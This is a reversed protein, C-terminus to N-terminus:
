LYWVMIVQYTENISRVPTSYEQLFDSNTVHDLSMYRVESVLDPNVPSEIFRKDVSVSLSVPIKEPQWTYRMLQEESDVVSLPFVRMFQSWHAFQLRTDFYSKCGFMKVFNWPSLKGSQMMWVLSMEPADNSACQWGVSQIFARFLRQIRECVRMARRIFFWHNINHIAVYHNRLSNTADNESTDHKSHEGTSNSLDSDTPKASVYKLFCAISDFYPVSHNPSEPRYGTCNVHPPEFQLQEIQYNFAHPLNLIIFNQQFFPKNQPVGNKVPMALNELVSSAASTPHPFRCPHKHRDFNQVMCPNGFSFPINIRSVSFKFIENESPKKNTNQDTRTRTKQNQNKTNLKIPSDYFSSNITDDQTSSGASYSDEDDLIRKTKIKNPKIDTNKYESPKTKGFALREKQAKKSKLKTDKQLKHSDNKEEVGVQTPIKM